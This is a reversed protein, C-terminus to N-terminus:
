AYRHRAPWFIIVTLVLLTLLLGFYELYQPLFLIVIHNDLDQRLRWGNAWNNVMVHERIEKGFLFPIHLSIFNQIRCTVHKMNCTVNSEYAKWGPSYSQFLMVTSDASNQPLSVVYRSYDLKESVVPYFTPSVISKDAKVLKLHKLQEYPLSYVSLSHLVNESAYNEYSNNHFNFSYGLGYPYRSGIFYYETDNKIRDELYSQKKTQDLIYFFLKRGKENTSNIKVIYGEKQDLVPLDYGFCATAGQSSTVDLSKGEQISEITGKQVYCETVLTQDLPVSAIPLKHWTVSLTDGSVTPYLVTNTAKYTDENEIYVQDILSSSTLVYTSPVLSLKRDLTFTDAQEKFVWEKEPVRTQTTLDLFPYYIDLQKQTDTYYDGYEQYATDDTTLKVIPGINPIDKSISIFNDIPKPHSVQYIVLNKWQKVKHISNTKELMKELRDYQMGKVTSTAPLLSYDLLLYDINYKEIVQQFKATDEAETATKIEWFYSESKDSWVDFTRSVIPQEIGYWIFGSGNYGWKHFFWGWFTYDPLMAIRKNKDVTKFYDMVQFYEKPIKVKMENSFFYGQFAPLAYIGILFAVLVGIVNLMITPPVKKMLRLAIDVVLCVGATFFYSFILAYVAFFKTFPSRFIQNVLDSRRIFDNIFSFPPTANLLAICVVIGVCIYSSRFPARKFIGLLVLGIFVYQILQPLTESFHDKWTAFLLTNDKSYLDYYFGEMKLFHTVTGKEKNQFFVDETALQNIKAEKTVSSSTAFFYTQPLIWFSNILFISIFIFLSRKVITFDKKHVFIGLIFFSLALIYVVFVTQLYAQPTALLNILFFTVMNKKSIRSDTLITIAVYIEWPLFAFFTSFPEFPVSFIQLVGLNGMYFLSGVFPIIKKDKVPLTRSLLQFMGMGGIGLMLLHYVYRIINQPLVTSLLFVFISRVMDSAHAMGSLLGFSQYEEWVSFLARKIGLLPNLDTQVNDWGTLYTGSVYNTVFLLVIVLCLIIQYKYIGIIKKM